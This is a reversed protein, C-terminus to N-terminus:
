NICNQYALTTRLYKFEELEEFFAGILSLITVEDQM